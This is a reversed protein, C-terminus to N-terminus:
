KRKGRQGANSAPVPVYRFSRRNNRKWRASLDAAQSARWAYWRAREDIIRLHGADGAVMMLPDRWIMDSILAVEHGEAWQCQLTTLLYHFYTSVASSNRRAALSRIAAASRGSSAELALGYRRMAIADQSAQRSEERRMAMAVTTASMSLLESSATVARLDPALAQYRQLVSPQAHKVGCGAVILTFMALGCTRSCKGLYRRWEGRTAPRNRLRPRRQILSQLAPIVGQVSAGLADERGFDPTLTSTRDAIM